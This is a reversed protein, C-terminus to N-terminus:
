VFFDSNLSFILEMHGYKDKSSLKILINSIGVSTIGNVETHATGPRGILYQGLDEPCSKSSRGIKIEVFTSGGSSTLSGFVM